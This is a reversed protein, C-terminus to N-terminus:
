GNEKLEGVCAIFKNGRDEFSTFMDFSACGPTLVVADGPCAKQSALLVAQKLDEAGCCNVYGERAFAELIKDRDVGIVVAYRCKDKVARALPAFDSGKDKGGCILVQGTEVANVSSVAADVNTCMSNNIYRVGKIEGINEMRHSVGGFSSLAKEVGKLAYKKTLLIAAMANATNHRGPVKLKGIDFVPATGDEDRLMIYGNEPWCGREVPHELSFTYVRGKVKDRLVTQSNPVVYVYFGCGDLALADRRAELASLFAAKDYR